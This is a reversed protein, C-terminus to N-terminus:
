SRDGDGVAARIEDDWGPLLVQLAHVAVGRELLRRVVDRRRDVVPVLGGDDRTPGDGQWRSGTGVPQTGAVKTQAM